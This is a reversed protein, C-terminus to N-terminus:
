EWQRLFADLESCFINKEICYLVLYEKSSSCTAGSASIKFIKRNNGAMEFINTIKRTKVNNTLNKVSSLFEPLLTQAPYRKM